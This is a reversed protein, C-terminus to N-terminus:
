NGGLPDFAAAAVVGRAVAAVPANVLGFDIAYYECGTHTVCGYTNGSIDHGSPGPNSLWPLLWPQAAHVEIPGVLHGCIAIAAALNLAIPPPLRRRHWSRNNKAKPGSGLM